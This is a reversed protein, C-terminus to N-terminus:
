VLGADVLHPVLTADAGLTVESIGRTRVADAPSPEGAVRDERRVGGAPVLREAIRDHDVIPVHVPHPVGPVTGERDLNSIGGRWIPGGPCAVAAGRDEPAKLGPVARCRARGRDDFDAQLPDEVEVAVGPIEHVLHSPGPTARGFITAAAPALRM